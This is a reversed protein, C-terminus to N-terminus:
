AYLVTRYWDMGTGEWYLFIAIRIDRETNCNIKKEKFISTLKFIM